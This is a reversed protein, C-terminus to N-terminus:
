VESTRHRKIKGKTFQEVTQTLEKYDIIWLVIFYIGFFVVATVMLVVITELIFIARPSDPLFSFIHNVGKVTHYAVGRLPLVKALLFAIIGSAIATGFTQIFPNRTFIKKVYERGQIIQMVFQVTEAVLTAIAAGVTGYFPMLIMNLILDTVAGVLVARFFLKEKGVPIFIQMGIINSLATTIVTFMMIQMPLTADLFKSGAIVLVSERAFLTFYITIPVSLMLLVKFSKKLVGYFNDKDEKEAYYSLRPMLVAGISTVLTTLITQIRVATHYIGVEYDGKIFGLMVNDLNTYVNVALLTSFLTITPKIHQKLNYNGLPKFTIYKRANIINLINSGVNAFVTILAYIYCDEPAHVFIFMLILSIIKFVISRITIYDYKELASYLWNLGAVNLIMNISYILLLIYEERFKPILLICAILAVFIIATTIINIIVLEQVRRSIDEKNDRVQACAKIGYTTIGLTAFLAFYNVTSQAFSLRGNAEVLLTRSVYPYTILPFVITSVTLITNMVANHKLSKM